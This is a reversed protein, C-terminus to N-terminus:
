VTLAKYDLNPCFTCLLLIILLSRSWARIGDFAANVQSHPVTHVLACDVRFSLLCFYSGADGPCGELAPPRGSGLTGPCPSPPGPPSVSGGEPSPFFCLPSSQLVRPHICSNGRIKGNNKCIFCVQPLYTWRSCLIFTFFCCVRKVLKCHLLIRFLQFAPRTARSAPPVLSQGTLSSFYPELSAHNLKFQIQYVSTLKKQKVTNTQKLQFIISKCHRPLKLHVALHNM